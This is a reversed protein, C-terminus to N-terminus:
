GREVQNEGSLREVVDVVDGATPLELAAGHCLVVLMNGVVGAGLAHRVLPGVLITLVRSANCGGDEEDAAVRGFVDRKLTGM